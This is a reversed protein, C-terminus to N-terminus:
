FRHRRTVWLPIIIVMYALLAFMCALAARRNNIDRTCAGVLMGVIWLPPFFFGAVLLVWGVSCQCPPPPPPNDHQYVPVAATQYMTPPQYPSGTTYAAPPQSPPPYATYPQAPYPQMPIAAHPPPLSAPVAVPVDPHQLQHPYSGVPLLNIKYMPNAETITGRAQYYFRLNEGAWRRIVLFLNVEQGFLQDLALCTETQQPRPFQYVKGTFRPPQSDPPSNQDEICCVSPGQPTKDCYVTAHSAITEPHAASVWDAFTDHFYARFGETEDSLPLM